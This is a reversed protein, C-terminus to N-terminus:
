RVDTNGTLQEPALSDPAFVPLTMRIETGAGPQSSVILDGGMLGTVLSYVIHMGLGSGGQGRKTTFFPEFMRKQVAASMGVGDDRCILEIRGEAAPGGALTITGTVRDEFAHTLANTVLNTIVQGLPGPHGDLLLGSPIEVEIRFNTRKLAPYLTGITEDVVQRLDFRRRQYSARDIAVQKFQRILDAARTINREVMEATETLTAKFSEVSSRRITGQEIERVFQRAQEVLSTAASMAVGIPTNIEHAVGAVLEGLAALKEAEVLRNQATQLTALAEEAQQKAVALRDGAARAPRLIRIEIVAGGGWLVLLLAAVILALPLTAGIAEGSLSGQPIAAILFWSPGAIPEAALYTGGIRTVAGSRDIKDWGPFFAGAPVANDSDTIIHGEGDALTVASELNHVAFAYKQLSSLRIGAAVWAGADPVAGIDLIMWGDIEDHVPESWGGASLAPQRKLTETLASGCPGRGDQACLLRDGHLILLKAIDSTGRSNYAMRLLRGASLPDLSAPNVQMEHILADSSAQVVHLSQDLSVARARLDEAMLRQVHELEGLYRQWIM